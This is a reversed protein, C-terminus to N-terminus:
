FFILHSIYFCIVFMHNFYINFINSTIHRYLTLHRLAHRYILLTAV